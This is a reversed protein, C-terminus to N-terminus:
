EILQDNVIASRSSAGNARRIAALFLVKVKMKTFM